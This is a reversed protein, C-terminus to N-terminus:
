SIKILRTYKSEEIDAPVINAIPIADSFRLGSKAYLRALLESCYVSKKSDWKNPKYRRFTVTLWARYLAGGIDYNENEFEQSNNIIENRKTETIGAHEYIVMKNSDFIIEAPKVGRILRSELVYFKM